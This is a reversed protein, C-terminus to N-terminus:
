SSEPKGHRHEHPGDMHRRDKGERESKARVAVATATEGDVKALVSVKQGTKVTDITADRNIRTDADVAYERSYGDESKVTLSDQDVATVEGRQTAVTVYEGEGERVVFEGHLNIKPGDWHRRDEKKSPKDSPGTSPSETATPAPAPTGSPPTAAATAVGAGTAVVLAATAALLLTRPFRRKSPQNGATEPETTM